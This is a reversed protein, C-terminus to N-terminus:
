GLHLCDAFAAFHGSAFAGENADVYWGQSGGFYAPESYQIDTNDDYFGGGTVIDGYNCYATASENDGFDFGGIDHSGSSARYSYSGGSTVGSRCSWTNDGNSTAVEGSNCGQPLQYGSSLSFEGANLDLGAGNTYTQDPGCQKKGSADIGTLFQGTDCSQNSLAFDSGSYTQQSQCSWGGSGDSAVFQGSSCGTQPLQFKPDIGVTVYGNDGGGTLGTGAAVKTVTGGSLHILVSNPGCPKTPNSGVAVSGIQGGTGGTNLCGTYVTVSDQPYAAIAIAAGVLLVAAVAVGAFLFRAGRAKKGFYAM